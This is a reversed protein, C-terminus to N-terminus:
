GPFEGDCSGYSRDLGHLSDDPTIPESEIIEMDLVDDADAPEIEPVLESVPEIVEPEGRFEARSGGFEM